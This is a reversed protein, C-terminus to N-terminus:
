EFIETEKKEIKFIKIDKYESDESLRKKHAIAEEKTECVRDNLKFWAEIIYKEKKM